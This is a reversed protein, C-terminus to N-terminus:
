AVKDQYQHLVPQLQKLLQGGMEVTLCGINPSVLHGTILDTAYGSGQFQSLLRTRAYQCPAQLMQGLSYVAGQAM